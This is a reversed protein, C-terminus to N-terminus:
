NGSHGQSLLIQKGTCQRSSNGKFYQVRGTFSHVEHSSPAMAPFLDQFDNEPIVRLLTKANGQIDSLDSFRRGKLANKLKPFVL